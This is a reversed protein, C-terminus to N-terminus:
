LLAAPPMSFSPRRACRDFMFGDQKSSRGEGEGEGLKTDGNRSVAFFAITVEKVVMVVFVLPKYGSILFMKIKHLAKILERNGNGTSTLLSVRQRGDDGVVVVIHCDFSGGSGSAVTKRTGEIHWTSHYVGSSSFEVLM